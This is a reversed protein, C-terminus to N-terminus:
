CAEQLGGGKGLWGESQQRVQPTPTCLPSFDNDCRSPEMDLYPGTVM